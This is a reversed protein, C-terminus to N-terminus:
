AQFGIVQELQVYFKNSGKKAYFFFSGGALSGNLVSPWTLAAGLTASTLM